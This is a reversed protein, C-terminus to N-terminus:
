TLSGRLWSRQPNFCSRPLRPISRRTTPTGTLVEAMFHEATMHMSPRMRAFVRCLILTQLSSGELVIRGGGAHVSDVVGRWGAIQSDTHIEPMYPIGRAQISIATAETVILAATARQAYYDANLRGPAGSSDARMRTLPAMVIRHPLEIAGLRLPKFLISTSTPRAM